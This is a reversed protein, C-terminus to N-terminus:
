GIGSLTRLDEPIEPDVNPPQFESRINASNIVGQYQAYDRSMIKNILKQREITHLVQQGAVLLVLFVLAVSM